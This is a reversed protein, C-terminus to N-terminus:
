KNDKLIKRYYEDKCFRDNYISTSYARDTINYDNNEIVVEPIKKESITSGKVSKDMFSQRNEDLRTTTESDKKSYSNNSSLISNITNHRNLLANNIRENLYAADEKSDSKDETLNDKTNDKSYMAELLELKVTDFIKRQYYTLVFINVNATIRFVFSFINLFFMITDIHYKYFSIPRPEQSEQKDKLGKIQYILYYFFFLIGFIL